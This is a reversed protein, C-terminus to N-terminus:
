KRESKSVFNHFAVQWDELSVPFNLDPKSAPDTSELPEDSEPLTEVVRLVRADEELVLVIWHCEEEQERAEREREEFWYYCGDLAPGTACQM